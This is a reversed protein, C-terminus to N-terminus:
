PTCFITGFKQAMGYTCRSSNVPFVLPGNVDGSDFSNRFFSDQQTSYIRRHLRPNLQDHRAHTSCTLFRRYSVQGHVFQQWGGAVEDGVVAGHRLRAALFGDGPDDDVFREVDADV